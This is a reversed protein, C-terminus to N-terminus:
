KLDVTLQAVSTSAKELDTYVVHYHRLTYRDQRSKKEDRRLNQSGFFEFTAWTSSLIVYETCFESINKSMSFTTPVPRVHRLVPDHM